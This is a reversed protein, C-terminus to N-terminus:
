IILDVKSLRCLFVRLRRLCQASATTLRLWFFEGRRMAAASGRGRSRSPWFKILQLHDSRKRVFGTQHPRHVCNRTITTVSGCVCGSVPGIVIYQAAAESARLTVINHQVVGRDLLLTTLYLCLFLTM